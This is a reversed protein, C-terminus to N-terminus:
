KNGSENSTVKGRNSPNVKQVENVLTKNKINSNEVTKTPLKAEKVPIKPTEETM